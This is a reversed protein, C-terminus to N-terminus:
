WPKMAMGAGQSFGGVASNLLQGFLGPQYQSQFGSSTGGTQVMQPLLQQRKALEALQAQYAAQREDAATSDQIDQREAGQLRMRLYQPIGATFANNWRNESAQEALQGRRGAGPDPNVPSDMFAKVFPNNPDQSEFGFTNSTKNEFPLKKAGGGM